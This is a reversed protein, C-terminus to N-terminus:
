NAYNCLHNNSLFYHVTSASRLDGWYCKCLYDGDQKQGKVIIIVQLHNDLNIVYIELWDGRLIKSLWRHLYVLIRQWAPRGGCKKTSGPVTSFSATTTPESVVVLNYLKSRRHGFIDCLRSVWRMFRPALTSPAQAPTNTQIHGWDMQGPSPLMDRLFM